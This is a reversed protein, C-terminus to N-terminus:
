TSHPVALLAALNPPNLASSYILVPSLAKGPSTAKLSGPKVTPSPFSKLTRTSFPSSTIISFRKPFEIVNLIVTM